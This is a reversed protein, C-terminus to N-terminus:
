LSFSHNVYVQVSKGKELTFTRIQPATYRQTKSNSEREEQKRRASENHVPDIGHRVPLRSTKSITVPANTDTVNGSRIEMKLEAKLPSGDRKQVLIAGMPAPKEITGNVTKAIISVVSLNIWGEATVSKVQAILLSDKPLVVKGDPNKLAQTLKIPYTRSQLPNDKKALSVHNKSAKLRASLSLQSNNVRSGSWVISSELRAETFTGVILSQGSRETAETQAPVEPATSNTTKPLGEKGGKNRAITSAAPEVTVRENQPVPPVQIVPPIPHNAESLKPLKAIKPQVKPAVQPVPLPASNVAPVSVYRVKPRIAVTRPIQVTQTAQVAPINVAPAPKEAKPAQPPNTNTPKPTPIPNLIKSNLKQLQETQNVQLQGAIKPPKEQSQNDGLTSIFGQGMLFLTSVGLLAGGSVVLTRAVTVWDNGASLDFANGTTVVVSPEIDESAETVEEEPYGLMQALEGLTPDQTSNHSEHNTEENM